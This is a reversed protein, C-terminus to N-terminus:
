PQFLTEPQINVTEVEPFQLATKEIQAQLLGVRCSGGSTFGPVETFTLDLEGTEEELEMGELKFEPNPFETSFGQEEEQEHINGELLLTITEQIPNQAPIIRNVPQVAEENCEVNGEEDTDEEQNYYFLKVEQPQLRNVGQGGQRVEETLENFENDTIAETVEGNEVTVKTIHPTIVQTTMEGERDGYGGHTSKFAFEFEYCDECEDTTTGSRLYLDKGDYTYTPSENKMWSTAIEQSKELTYTTEEGNQGNDGQEPTSTQNMYVVGGLLILIAVILFLLNRKNM